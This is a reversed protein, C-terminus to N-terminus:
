VFLLFSEGHSMTKTVYGTWWPGAPTDERGRGSTHARSWTTRGCTRGSTRRPNGGTWIGWTCLSTSVLHRSPWSSCRAASWRRRSINGRLSSLWTGFGRSAWPWRTRRLEACLWHPAASLYPERAVCGDRSQLLLCYVFLILFFGTLLHLSLFVDGYHKVNIIFEMTILLM